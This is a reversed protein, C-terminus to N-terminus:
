KIDIAFKGNAKINMKKAIFSKTNDLIIVEGKWTNSNNTSGCNPCKNGEFIRLCNRCAHIKTSKKM